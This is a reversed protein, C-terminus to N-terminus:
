KKKKRGCEKRKGKKSKMQNWNLTSCKYTDYRGAQRSAQRGARGGARGGVRGGVQRGM